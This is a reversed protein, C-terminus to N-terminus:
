NKDQVSEDEIEQDFFKSKMETEMRLKDVQIYELTHLMPLTVQTPDRVMCGVAKGELHGFVQGAVSGVFGGVVAGLVPVPIAAQGAVAGLTGGIM